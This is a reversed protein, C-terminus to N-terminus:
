RLKGNLINCMQTKKLCFIKEMKRFSTRTEMYTKKILFIQEENVKKRARRSNEVREIFRCNSLEYHGNTDIRDITACNLKWAKDRDWLYKFDEKTMLMKIGRGGYFKYKPDKCVTCRAKARAYSEKWGM